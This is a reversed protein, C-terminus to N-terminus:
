LFQRGSEGSGFHRGGTAMSTRFCCELVQRRSAAAKLGVELASTLRRRQWPTFNCAPSPAAASAAKQRKLNNGDGSLMSAVADHSQEYGRSIADCEARRRLQANVGDGDSLVIGLGQLAGRRRDV